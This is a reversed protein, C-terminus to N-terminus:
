RCVTKITTTVKLGSYYTENHIQTNNVERLEKGCAQFVTESKIREGGGYSETTQICTKCRQCSYFSLAVTILILLKKM